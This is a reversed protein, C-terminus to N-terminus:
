LSSVHYLYYTGVDTTSGMGIIDPDEIIPEENYPQWVAFYTGENLYGSWDFFHGFWQVLQALNRTEFEVVCSKEHDILGRNLIKLLETARM